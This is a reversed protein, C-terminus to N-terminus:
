RGEGKRVLRLPERCHPRGAVSLTLGPVRVPIAEREAVAVQCLRCFFHRSM